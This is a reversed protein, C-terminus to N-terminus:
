RTECGRGGKAGKRMMMDEIKGKREKVATRVECVRAPVIM